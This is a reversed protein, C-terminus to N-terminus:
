RKLSRLREVLKYVLTCPNRKGHSTVARHLQECTKANRVADREKHKILSYVDMNKEYKKGLLQSLKKNLQSRNLSNELLNFHLLFWLEFSENSYAVNIGNAEARSIANDFGEHDDRDFVVWWEDEKEGNIREEIVVDVLSKPDFGNGKSRIQVGYIRMENVISNFYNPETKSGETYIFIIKGPFRTSRSRAFREM